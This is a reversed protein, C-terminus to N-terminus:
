ARPNEAAKKKDDPKTRVFVPEGARWAISVEKRRYDHLLAILLMKRKMSRSANILKVLRIETFDILSKREEATLGKLAYVSFETSRRKKATQEASDDSPVENAMM